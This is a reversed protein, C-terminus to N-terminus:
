CTFPIFIIAFIFIIGQIVTMNWTLFFINFLESPLYSLLSTFLPVPFSPLQDIIFKTHAVKNIEEPKKRKWIHKKTYIIRRRRRRYSFHLLVHNNILSAGFPREEKPPPIIKQTHIKRVLIKNKRIEVEKMDM